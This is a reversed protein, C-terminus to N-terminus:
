DSAQNDQTSFKSSAKLSSVVSCAPFTQKKFLKIFSCSCLVSVAVIAVDFDLNM